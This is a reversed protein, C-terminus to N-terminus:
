EFGEHSRDGLVWDVYLTASWGFDEIAQHPFTGPINKRKRLLFPPEVEARDDFYEFFTGWREVARELKVLTKRVLNDAVADLGYRRLGRAVLWNVSIWAPGRWMDKSYHISDDAAVSPIPFPTGFTEPNELHAALRKAQRVDPAGCLLPLFGSSARVDSLRGTAPNYDLYLGHEESWLRRNILACLEIQRARWQRADDERGLLRAFRSLVEYENAQYANFDPAGLLLADDFRPSNDMGSEGSRSEPTADIHWELLGDGDSDRHRANWDVYAALKPYLKELWDLRKTKEFVLEVGLALVPPQTISSCKLPSARHPVFGDPAQLDLVAEIMQGALEADVHRWGAAHFVSDWLWIDRHPWRDPTTWPRAILGEPSCLQGKMQSLARLLARRRPEPCNEPLHRGELWRGKAALADEIDVTLLEESFRGASGALLREGLRLCRVTTACTKVELLGETLLHHADVIVGRVLLGDMGIVEFWDSAMRVERVSDPLFGFRLEALGPLVIDIGGAVARAVLGHQYDTPGDLHSLALITGTHWTKSPLTM